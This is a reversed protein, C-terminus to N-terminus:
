PLGTTVDNGAKLVSRPTSTSKKGRKKQTNSEMPMKLFEDLQERTRKVYLGLEQLCYDSTTMIVVSDRPGNDLFAKM